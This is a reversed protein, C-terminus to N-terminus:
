TRKEKVINECRSVGRYAVTDLFGSCVALL